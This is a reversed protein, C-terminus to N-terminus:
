IGDILPRADDRLELLKSVVRGKADVLTLVNNHSITGDGEESFKVKLLIALDRVAPADAALLTWNEPALNWTKAFQKLEQPNDKKSDMSILVLGAGKAVAQKEISKLKQVILPCSYKCHTYFMSVIRPKGQLDRFLVTEGDQNKLKPNLQFLSDKPPSETSSAFSGTLLLLTVFVHKM